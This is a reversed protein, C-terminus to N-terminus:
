IKRKLFSNPSDLVQYALPQISDRKELFAKVEKDTLKLRVEFVASTGCTVELFYEDTEEDQLVVYFYPEEYLTKMM